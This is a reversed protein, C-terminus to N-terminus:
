SVRINRIAAMKSEHISKEVNSIMTTSQMEKQADIQMQLLESFDGSSSLPVGGVEAGIVKGATSVVKSAVNVVDNFIGIGTSSPEPLYRSAEGYIGYLGSSDTSNISDM